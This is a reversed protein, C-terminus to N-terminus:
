GLRRCAGRKSLVPIRGRSPPEQIPNQRVELGAKEAPMFLSVCKDSSTNLLFDFDKPTFEDTM